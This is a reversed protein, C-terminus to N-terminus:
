EQVSARAVLVDEDGSKWRYGPKIVVVAAGDAIPPGISQHSARDFAVREGAREIPELGSLLVRSRVRHVMARVSAENVALEEVESALEALARIGDLVAQRQRAAIERPDPVDVLAQWVAEVHAKRGRAGLTREILEFAEVPSLDPPNAVWRYRHHPEVVIHEDTRLQRQLGTWVNTDVSVGAARLTGKIEVANMATAADRVVRVVAAYKDAEFLAALDRSTRGRRTV